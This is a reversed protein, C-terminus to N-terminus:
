PASRSAAPAPLGGPLAGPPFRRVVCLMHIDPHNVSREATHEILIACEYDAPIVNATLRSGTATDAIEDGIAALENVAVFSLEEPMTQLVIRVTGVCLRCATLLLVNGGSQV